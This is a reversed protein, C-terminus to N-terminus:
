DEAPLPTSQDTLDAPEILVGGAFGPKVEVGDIVGLAVVFAWPIMFRMVTESGDKMLQTTKINKLWLGHHDSTDELDAYVIHTDGTSRSEQGHNILHRVSTDIWDKSVVVVATKQKQAM